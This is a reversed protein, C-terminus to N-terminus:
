NDDKEGFLKGTAPDRKGNEIEWIEQRLRYITELNRNVNYVIKVMLALIGVIIIICVTVLLWDM